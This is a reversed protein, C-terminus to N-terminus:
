QPPNRLHYWERAFQTKNIAVQEQTKASAAMSSLNRAVATALIFVSANDAGAAWDGGAGVDGVVEFDATTL